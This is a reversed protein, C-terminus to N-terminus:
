VTARLAITSVSTVIAAMAGGGDRHYRELYQLM